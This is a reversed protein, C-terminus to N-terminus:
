GWASGGGSSSTTTPTTAAPAPAAATMAHKVLAGKTNVVYWTGDFAQGKVQGPRKDGAFYYLPFGAYTVQRMGPTAKITGLLARKVGAGATPKVTAKVLLRPWFKNCTANASCTNVRKRDPTYRYLTRGNAAVLITGFKANAATAVTARSSHTAASAAMAVGAGAVAVLLLPLGWLILRTRM